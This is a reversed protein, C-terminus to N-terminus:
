KRKRSVPRAPAKAPSRQTRPAPASPRPAPAAGHQTPKQAPHTTVTRQRVVTTVPPTKPRQRARSPAQPSNGSHSGNPIKSGSWVASVQRTRGGTKPRVNATSRGRSKAGTPTHKAVGTKSKEQGKSKAKAKPVFEWFGHGQGVAKYGKPATPRSHGFPARIAGKGKLAPAAKKKNGGQPTPDGGTVNVQEPPMGTAIANALDDIATSFPALDPAGGGGAGGGGPATDLTGATPDYISEGPQLVQEGTGPSPGPGPTVSGTGTGSSVGTGGSAASFKRRYYWVGLGFILLYGWAPLPGYKKTLAAKINETRM